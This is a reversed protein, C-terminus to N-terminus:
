YKQLTAAFFGDMEGKKPFSFFPTGVLKVPFHKLFFDIQQENESPLVSCTAYVIHGKPKVFAFAEEFIKRQKNQLEEIDSKQFLWKRDPNRRLTGSGSCPADVLVWDM